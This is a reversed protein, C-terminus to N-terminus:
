KPVDSLLMMMGEDSSIAKPAWFIFFFSSALLAGLGYDDEWTLIDICSVKSSYRDESSFNLRLCRADIRTLSRKHTITGNM